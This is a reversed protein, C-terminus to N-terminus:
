PGLSAVAAVSIAGKLFDRRNMDGGGMM